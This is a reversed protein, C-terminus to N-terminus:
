ATRRSIADVVAALWLPPVRSADVVDIRLDGGIVLSLAAGALTTAAPSTAARVTVPVLTMAPPASSTSSLRDSWWAIRQPNIGHRQAFPAMAEGSRKWVALVRRGEDATWHRPGRLAAIWDTSTTTM